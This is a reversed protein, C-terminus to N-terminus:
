NRQKQKRSFRERCSPCICRKGMEQLAHEFKTSDFFYHCNECVIRDPVEKLPQLNMLCSNCLLPQHARKLREVAEKPKNATEHCSACSFDEFFDGTADYYRKPLLETTSTGHNYSGLYRRFADSWEEATATRKGTFVDTFLRTVSPVTNNWIMAYPGDPVDDGRNEKTRYAFSYSRIADEIKSNSKSAFPTQGLMLMHFLLSALAFEEDKQTRPCEAYGGSARDLRELYAPSSYEAMGVPCNFNEFQYSDCDVFYVREPNAPDVLINRPNVDGMLVNNRHLDRFTESISRCAVVISKRDWGPLVKKQVTKSSLRYVSLVLEVSNKAAAPMLFGVFKGDTNFLLQSPWCILKNPFRKKVMARLKQFLAENIRHVHYIKAVMGPKGTDYVTGEGGPEGVSSLLHIIEKNETRVIDGTKPAILDVGTSTGVLQPPTQDSANIEEGASKAAASNLAKSMVNPRSSAAASYAMSVSAAEKACLAALRKRAASRIMLGDNKLNTASLCYPLKEDALHRALANDSSLVCIPVDAKELLFQLLSENADMPHSVSGVYSILGLKQMHYLQLRARKAQEATEASENAKEIRYIESLTGFDTLLKRGNEKLIPGLMSLVKLGDRSMLFARDAIMNFQRILEKVQMNSLKGGQYRSLATLRIATSHRIKQAEESFGASVNQTRMLEKDQVAIRCIDRIEKEPCFFVTGTSADVLERLLHNGLLYNLLEDLPMNFEDAFQEVSVAPISLTNRISEATKVCKELKTQVADVSWFRNLCLISEIDDLKQLTEQPMFGDFAKEDATDHATKNRYDRLREIKKAYTEYDASRCSDVIRNLLKGPKNASAFYLHLIARICGGLDITNMIENKANELADGPLSILKRRVAEIWADGQLSDPVGKMCSCELLKEREDSFSHEDYYDPWVLPFDNGCGALVVQRYLDAVDSSLFDRFLEFGKKRQIEKGDM